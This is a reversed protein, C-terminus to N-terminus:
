NEILFLRAQLFYIIPSFFDINLKFSNTPDFVAPIFSPTSNEKSFIAGDEGAM